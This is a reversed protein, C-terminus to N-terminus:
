GKEGKKKKSKKEKLIKEEEAKAKLINECKAFASELKQLETIKKSRPRSM